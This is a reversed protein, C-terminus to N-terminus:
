RSPTVVPAPPVLLAADLQDDSFGEYARRAEDHQRETKDRADRHEKGGFTSTDGQPADVSGDNSLSLGTAPDVVSVRWGAFSWGPPGRITGQIHEPPPINIPYNGSM